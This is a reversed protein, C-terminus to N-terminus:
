DIMALTAYFPQAHPDAQRDQIRKLKNAYERYLKYSWDDVYKQLNDRHDCFQDFLHGGYSNWPLDFSPWTGALKYFNVQVLSVHWTLRLDIGHREYVWRGIAGAFALDLAATPVWESARSYMTLVPTPKTRISFGLLCNGMGVRSGM